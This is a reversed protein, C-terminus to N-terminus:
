LTQTPNVPPQISPLFDGVTREAQFCHSMNLQHLDRLKTEDIAFELSSNVKENLEVQTCNSALIGATNKDGLGQIPRELVIQFKFAVFQCSPFLKVIQDFLNDGSKYRTKHRAYLGNVFMSNTKHPFGIESTTWHPEQALAFPAVPLPFRFDSEGNTQDRDFRYGLQLQEIREAKQQLLSLRFM